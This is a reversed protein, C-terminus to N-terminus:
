SSFSGVNLSLEAEASAMSLSRSRRATSVCTVTIVVIWWDEESAHGPHVARSAVMDARLHVQQQEAMASGDVMARHRLRGVVDRQM